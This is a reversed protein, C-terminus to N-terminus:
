IQEKEGHFLIQNLIDLMSNGIIKKMFADLIAFMDGERRRIFELKEMSVIQRNQYMIGDSIILCYVEFTWFRKNIALNIEFGKNIQKIYYEKEEDIDKEKTFNRVFGNNLCFNQLIELLNINM